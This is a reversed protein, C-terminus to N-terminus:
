RLVPTRVGEFADRLIEIQDEMVDLVHLDSAGAYCWKLTEEGSRIEGGVRRVRMAVTVPQQRNGNPYEIVRDPSSYLGLLSEVEVELGIEERVERVCAERVSEGADLHGSPLCWQGNDSRRVLLVKPEGEKYLLAACGVTVKAGKGVRDGQLVRTM